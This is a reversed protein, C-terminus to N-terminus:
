RNANEMVRYYEEVGIFIINRKIAESVVTFERSKLMEIFDRYRIDTAHIKLPFRSLVQEIPKFDETIVLMDIDSHKAQKGKAYSGFLLAIFPANVRCLDNYIVLFNKDRLLEKRREYEVIFVSDNFIRNFSCLTTNGTHKLAAIGEKELKKLAYYASKYNIKRLRSIKRISFSEEQNEILLKLINLKENDM